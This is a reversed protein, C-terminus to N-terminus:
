GFVIIKGVVNEVYLMYFYMILGAVGDFRRLVNTANEFSNVGIVICYFMFGYVYVWMFIDNVSWLVYDDDIMM